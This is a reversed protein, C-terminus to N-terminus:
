RKRKRRSKLGAIYNAIEPVLNFWYGLPQKGVKGKKVANGLQGQARDRMKAWQRKDPAHQGSSAEMLVARQDAIAREARLMDAFRADKRGQAKALVFLEPVLATDGSRLSEIWAERHEGTRTEVYIEAPEYREILKRQESESMAPQPNIYARIHPTESM